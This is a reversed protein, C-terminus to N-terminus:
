ELAFKVQVQVRITLESPEQVPVSADMAEAHMMRSRAMPRHHGSIEQITIPSGVNADLSGALIEAKQFADEAARVRAEEVFEDDEELIYTLSEFNNGGAEITAQMVEGVRDLDHIRVILSNTTQYGTILPPLGKRYQRQPSLQFRETEYEEKAIDLKELVEFIKLIAQNNLETSLNATKATTLVGLRLIAMDPSASVEGNGTVHVWREIGEKEQHGYCFASIYLLLIPLPILKNM